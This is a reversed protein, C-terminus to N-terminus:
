TKRTIEKRRIEGGFGHICRKHGGYMGYVGGMKNKKIQDDAHNHVYFIHIFAVNRGREANIKYVEHWIGIGIGIGLRVCM